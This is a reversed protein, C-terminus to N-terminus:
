GLHLGGCTFLGPRRLSPLFLLLFFENVHGVLNQESPVFRFFNSYNIIMSLVLQQYILIVSLPFDIIEQGEIRHSIQAEMGQAPHARQEAREPSTQVRRELQGRKDERNFLPETALELALGSPQHIPPAEQEQCGVEQRSVLHFEAEERNTLLDWAQSIDQEQEQSIDQEQELNIDQEQGQSIDQEQSTDQEQELNIRAAQGQNIHPDQALRIHLEQDQFAQAEELLEQPELLELWEQLRIEQELNTGQPQRHQEGSELNVPQVQGVAIDVKTYVQDLWLLLALGPLPNTLKARQVAQIAQSLLGVQAQNLNLILWSREM